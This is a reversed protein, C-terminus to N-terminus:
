FIDYNEGEQEVAEGIAYGHPLQRIVKNIHEHTLYANLDKRPVKNIIINHNRDRLSIKRSGYELYFYGGNLLAHEYIMDTNYKM